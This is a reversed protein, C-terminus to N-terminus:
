SHCVSIQISDTAKLNCTSVSLEVLHADYELIQFAHSLGLQLCGKMSSDFVILRRRNGEQETFSEVVIILRDACRDLMLVNRSELGDKIMLRPDVFWEKM